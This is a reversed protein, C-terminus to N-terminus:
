MLKPICLSDEFGLLFAEIKKVPSVPTPLDDNMKFNVPEAMLTPWLRIGLVVFKDMCYLVSLQVHQFELTSYPM